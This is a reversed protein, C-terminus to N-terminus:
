ANTPAGSQWLRVGGAFAALDDGRRAGPPLTELLKTNGGGLVVEDPELATQLREVVDFVAKCWKKRGRRKLGRVGVYEEFSRGKKYPLHALEMPEVVGNVIMASGLGTGLGLFLMKGDRYNGLAQMAADNVLKVPCALAASFDFGVWGSGLNHPDHLPRGGLVAGPYGISAGNYHWDRTLDQVGSVMRQPTLSRSSNFKRKEDLHTSLAVKVHTGGVDIVLIVLAQNKVPKKMFQGRVRCTFSGDM